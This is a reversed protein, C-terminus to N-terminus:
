SQDLWTGHIAKQTFHSAGFYKRLIDLCDFLDFRAQLLRWAEKEYGQLLPSPGTSDYELKTMNLDKYFIWRSNPLHTKMHNWLSAREQEINPAYVSVIRYEEM